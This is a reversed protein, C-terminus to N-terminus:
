VPIDAAELDRLFTVVANNFADPQEFYVSHGAGPIIQFRAGRVLGAAHQVIHAPTVADHEGVLFLVPVDTEAIYASFSGSWGAPPALFDAPRKPNLRQIERYLFALEPREQEFEKHLARQLLTSGPPLTAAYARQLDRVDNNTAGAPTGSFVVGRLREPARRILNAATRGGMSHAVMFFREIGLHDALALVDPAFQMRGGPVEGSDASRGFARHDFTVCRYWQQFFPVQQWWSLSNGGQGHAFVIAPGKGHAEYYLEIGNVAAVPV